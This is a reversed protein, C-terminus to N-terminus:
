LLVWKGGAGRVGRSGIQEENTYNELINYSHFQETYLRNPNAKGSMM